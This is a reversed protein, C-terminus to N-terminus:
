EEAVIRVIADANIQEYALLEEPTGSRALKRVALHSILKALFHRARILLPFITEGLGGQPYHDEVIVLQDANQLLGLLTKEDFPKVSYCDMVTAQIRKKALVKQAKLAEHVTIGIAAVVVRKKPHEVNAEHVKSGGVPFEEEPGYLIDTPERVTRIYSVGKQQMVSETLKWASAADAPCVVTSGFVTRMMAIDELGM